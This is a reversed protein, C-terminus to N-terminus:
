EKTQAAGVISQVRASKRTFFLAFAILGLAAATIVAVVVYGIWHHVFFAVVWLIAVPIGVRTGLTKADLKPPTRAVPATEGQKATKGSKASPRESTGMVEARLSASM